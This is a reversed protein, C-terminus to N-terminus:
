PSIIIECEAAAKVFYGKWPELATSEIYGSNTYEFLVGDTISDEVAESLTYQKEGCRFVTGNDWPIPIEFPNGILNWGPKLPVRIESTVPM